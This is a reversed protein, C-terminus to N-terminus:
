EPTTADATSFSNPCHGLHRSTHMLRLETSWTPCPCRGSSNSQATHQLLLRFDYYRAVAQLKKYSSRTHSLIVWISWTCDVLMSSCNQLTRGPVRDVSGQSLEWLMPVVRPDKWPCTCCRTNEYIYMMIRSKRVFSDQDPQTGALHGDFKREGEPREKGQENM